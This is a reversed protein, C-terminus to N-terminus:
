LRRNLAAALDPVNAERVIVRPTGHWSACDRLSSALAEILNDDVEIGPELHLSKVEFLGDRRHAKPDLRGILRERWLIPLTFYGYVRKPAPTYCEIRYDFDFLALARPRDRVIPDFPSLLVAAGAASASASPARDAPM